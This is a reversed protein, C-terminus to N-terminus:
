PAMVSWNKAGGNLNLGVIGFSRAGITKLVTAANPYCVNFSYTAAGNDLHFYPAGLPLDTHDPLIVAHDNADPTILLSNGTLPTISIDTTLAIGDGGGYFYEDYVIATGLIEIAEIGEVEGSKFAELSMFITEDDQVMFRVPTDFECGASIVTALAPASNFTILGTTTDVSFDVGETQAVGDVAVVVTADVPKRLNRVRVIGGSTYRKVLQFQTAAGDGTGIVEHEDDPATTGDTATTYDNWDKLRWGYANGRRAIWFAQFEALESQERIGYAFRYRRRAASRRSVRQEHGSDLEITNTFFGPGGRFGFRFDTNLQVEHFGGVEAM